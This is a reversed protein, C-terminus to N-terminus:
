ESKRDIRNLLELFEPPIPEKVVDDFMRKLGLGIVDDQAANDTGPTQSMGDAKGKKGPLRRKEFEPGGDKQKKM